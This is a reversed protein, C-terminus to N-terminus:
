ESKGFPSSYSVYVKHDPFVQILRQELKFAEEPLAIHMAPFVQVRFKLTLRLAIEIVIKEIRADQHFQVVKQRM